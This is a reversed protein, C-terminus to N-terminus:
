SNAAQQLKALKTLTSPNKGGVSLGATSAVGIYIRVDNKVVKVIGNPLKIEQNTGDMKHVTVFDKILSIFNIHEPLIDFVGSANTSSVAKAQGDFVVRERDRVTVHISESLRQPQKTDM